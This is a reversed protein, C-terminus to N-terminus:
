NITEKKFFDLFDINLINAVRRLNSIQPTRHGNIWSNITVRPIGHFSLAKLNKELGEGSELIFILNKSIPNEAIKTRKRSMSNFDGEQQKNLYYEIYKLIDLM